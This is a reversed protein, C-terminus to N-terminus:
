KSIEFGEAKTNFANSHISVFITEKAPFSNAVKVRYSLSLDRPDDAEVTTVINYNSGLSRLYAKLIGGIQRNLVGEYAIENANFKHRKGPTTYVGNKDLGGHGFDLIINKIM